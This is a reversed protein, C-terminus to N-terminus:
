QPQYTLNHSYTKQHYQSWRSICTSFREQGVRREASRDAGALRHQHIQEEERRRDLALAAHVTVGEHLLHLVAQVGPALVGGVLVLRVRKRDDAGLEGLLGPQEAEVLEM